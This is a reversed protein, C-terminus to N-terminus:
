FLLANQVQKNECSIGQVCEKKAKFAQILNKGKTNCPLPDRGMRVPFLFYVM